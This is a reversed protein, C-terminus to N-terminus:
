REDAQEHQLTVCPTDETGAITVGNLMVTDARLYDVTRQSSASCSKPVTLMLQQVVGLEAAGSDRSLDLQVLDVSANSAVISSNEGVRARLEHM